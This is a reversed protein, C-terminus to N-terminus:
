ICCVKSVQVEYKKCVTNLIVFHGSAKDNYVYSESIVCPNTLQIMCYHLDSNNFSKTMHRTSRSQWTLNTPKWYDNNCLITSPLQSMFHLKNDPMHQIDVNEVNNILLLCNKVLFWLNYSILIKKLLSYIWSTVHYIQIHLIWICIEATKSSNLRQSRNIQEQQYWILNSAMYYIIHSFKHCNSLYM